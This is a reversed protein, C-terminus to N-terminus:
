KYLNYSKRIKGGVPEIDMCVKYQLDLLSLVVDGMINPDTNAFNSEYATTSYGTPGGPFTQSGPFATDTSGSTVYFVMAGNPEVMIYDPYYPPWFIVGRPMKQPESALTDTTTSLQKNYDKDSYIYVTGAPDTAMNANSLRIFHSIRQAAASQRGDLLAVQLTNSATKVKDKSFMVGYLAIVGGLLIVIIICVVLLEMLTFGQRQRSSSIMGEM